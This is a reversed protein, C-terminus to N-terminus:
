TFSLCFDYIHRVELNKKVLIQPAPLEIYFKRKPNSTEPNNNITWDALSEMSEDLPSLERPREKSKGKNVPDLHRDCDDDSFKTFNRKIQIHALTKDSQEVILDDWRPIDGQECGIMRIHEKGLAFKVVM